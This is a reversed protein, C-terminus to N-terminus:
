DGGRGKEKDWQASRRMILAVISSPGAFYAFCISIDKANQTPPYLCRFCPRELMRIPSRLRLMRPFVRGPGPRYAIQPQQILPRIRLSHQPSTSYHFFSHFINSRYKEFPVVETSTITDVHSTSHVFCLINRNRASLCPKKLAAQMTIGTKTNTTASSTRSKYINAQVASILM